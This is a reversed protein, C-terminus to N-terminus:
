ETKGARHTLTLELGLKNTAFAEFYGLSTKQNQEHIFKTYAAMIFSNQNPSISHSVVPILIPYLKSYSGNTMRYLLKQVGEINSYYQIRQIRTGTSPSNKINKVVIIADATLIEMRNSLICTHSKAMENVIELPSRGNTTDANTAIPLWTRYSSANSHGCYAQSGFWYAQGWKPWNSPRHPGVSEAVIIKDVQNNLLARLCFDDCTGLDDRASSHIIALTHIKPPYELLDMDDATLKDAPIVSLANTLNAFLILISLSGLISNSWHATPFFSRIIPLSARAFLLFLFVAPTIYLLYILPATIVGFAFIITFAYVAGPPWILITIAGLVAIFKDLKGFRFRLDPPQQNIKSQSSPKTM